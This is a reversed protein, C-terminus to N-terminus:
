EVVVHFQAVLGLLGKFAHSLEEALSVGVGILVGGFDGIQGFHDGAFELEGLVLDFLDAGSGDDMVDAFQANGIADELFGAGEGVFFPDDHFFM